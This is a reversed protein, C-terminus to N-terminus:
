RLVPFRQCLLAPYPPTQKGRIRRPRMLYLRRRQYVPRALLTGRRACRMERTPSFRERPRRPPSQSLKRSIRKSPFLRSSFSTKVMDAPVRSSTSHPLKVASIPTPISTTRTKSVGAAVVKQRAEASALCSTQNGILLAGTQLRQLDYRLSLKRASRFEYSQITTDNTAEKDTDPKGRGCWSRDKTEQIWERQEIHCGCLWFVLRNTTGRIHILTSGHLHGPAKFPTKLDAIGLLPASV